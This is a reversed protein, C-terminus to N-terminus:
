CGRFPYDSDTGRRGVVFEDAAAAAALAAAAMLLVAVRM